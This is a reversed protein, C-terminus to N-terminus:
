GTTGKSKVLDMLEQVQTRLTPDATVLEKMKEYAYLMTTHRRGGFLQGIQPFSAETLERIIYIAVQRACAIHKTRLNSQLDSRQLHYYHAVTEIMDEKSIRSPDFRRGLLAQAQVLDIAYGTLMKFASIKNLAGELERINSPFSEAIYQAVDSELQIELRQAKRQLIAIRTEFDPAQIDAILGWSFRSRLRDELRSLRNPPRDSSIIIQKGAQHLTNFTHFIEEQTRDKGELFQVDDIMLIDIRRYRDRFNKMDQSGLASILDNTFQETTVYKVKYDPHHLHAFHGIAHMLHTKGLGVGGYIFLPNYSQAPTEAVALAAAHCFRNHNGVVFQDFTYKPNLTDAKNKPTWPRKVAHPSAGKEASAPRELEGSILTDPVTIDVIIEPLSPLELIGAFARAIMEKYNKLIWDRNFTSGTELTIKEAQLHTVKLPAIWTEFSPATLQSRLLAQVSEWATIKELDTIAM